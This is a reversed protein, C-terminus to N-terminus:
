RHCFSSNPKGLSENGFYGIFVGIDKDVSEIFVDTGNDLSGMLVGTDNDVSDILM